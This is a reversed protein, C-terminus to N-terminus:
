RMPADRAVGALTGVQYGLFTYVGLGLLGSVVAQGGSLATPPRAHMYAHAMYLPVAAAAIKYLPGDSIALVKREDEPRRFYQSYAWLSSGLLVTKSITGM